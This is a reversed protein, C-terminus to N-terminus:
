ARSVLQQFDLASLVGLVRLVSLLCSTSSSSCYCSVLAAGLRLLACASGKYKEQKVYQFSAEGEVNVCSTYM